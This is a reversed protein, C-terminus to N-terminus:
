KPYEQLPNKYCLYIQFLFHLAHPFKSQYLETNQSLILEGRCREEADRRPMEGRCREEAESPSCIGPESVSLLYKTRLAPAVASSVASYKVEEPDHIFTPNEHSHHNSGEPTPMSYLEM